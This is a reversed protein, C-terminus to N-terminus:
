LRMDALAIIIDNSDWVLPDPTGRIAAWFKEPHSELWDAPDTDALKFLDHATIKAGIEQEFLLPLSGPRWIRRLPPQVFIWTAGV